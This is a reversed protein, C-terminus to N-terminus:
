SEVCDVQKCFKFIRVETTGSIDNPGFFKFHTVDGEGRGKLSSKDNKHQSKVYAVQTWFKVVRAHNTAQHRGFNLHNM